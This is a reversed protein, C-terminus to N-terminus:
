ASQSVNALSRILKQTEAPTGTTNVMYVTTRALLDRLYKTRIEKKFPNNVLLHPNFYNNDSFVQLAIDPNLSQVTTPDSPDRKLVIIIRLTTMPLIRGKGIVWRIDAVARGEGDYDGEKVLGEFEKWIKELDQRIYFNKESGYALIEPGFVRSFFWDDSVIRTHPEKLLGYTQTTKGAGSTGVICLGSGYIDVCAGHISFIDHEDELIDGALSLALSKIWGYYNFNFLFATKSQPEYLVTDPKYGPDTFVYMRGHSRVNQSMSYFNEQWTDKVEHDGTLLKICCGYIESKIEYRVLSGLQSALREKEDPTILSITYAMATVTGTSCYDSRRM